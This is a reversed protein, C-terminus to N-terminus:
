TANGAEGSSNSNSDLCHNTDTPITAEARGAEQLRHPASVACASPVFRVACPVDTADSATVHTVTPQQLHCSTYEAMAVQGMNVPPPESVVEWLQTSVVKSWQPASGM